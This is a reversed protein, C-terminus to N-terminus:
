GAASASDAVLRRWLYFTAYSGWGPYHRDAWARARAEPARRALGAYRELAVRVGLDGAVFVDRRGAGRLLANEATWPGVGPLADLMAIARALPAAALAPEPAPRDVAWAGLARLAAAKARSMGIAGLAGATLGALRRPSPPHPVDVAGARLLGGTAEFLRREIARAAVVSIQQGLIAHVLSEFVTPDRPLRLGRFRRETGALVPDARVLRYFEPLPHDLSFLARTAARAAPPDAGWAEIRWRAGRPEVALAWPRDARGWARLLRDGDTVFVLSRSSGVLQSRLADLSTPRPPELFTVTPAAM